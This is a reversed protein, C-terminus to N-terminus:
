VVFAGVAVIGAMVLAHDTRSAANGTPEPTKMTILSSASALAASDPHGSMAVCIDEGLDSGALDM